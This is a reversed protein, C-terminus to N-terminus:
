YVHLPWAPLWAACVFHGALTCCAISPRGDWCLVALPGWPAAGCERQGAVCGHGPRRRQQFLLRPARAGGPPRRPRPGHRTWVRAPAPLRDSHPHPTLPQARRAPMLPKTILQVALRGEGARVEWCGTCCMPPGGRLALAPLCALAGGVQRLSACSPATGRVITDTCSRPACGASALLCARDPSTLAPPQKCPLLLSGAARSGPDPLTCGRGALRAGAHAHPGALGALAPQGGCDAGGPPGLPHAGPLLRGRLPPTLARSHLVASHLIRQPHCPRPRLGGRCWARCGSIM